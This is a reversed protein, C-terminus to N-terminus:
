SAGGKARPYEDMVVNLARRGTPTDSATEAYSALTFAADLLTIIPPDLVDAAAFMADICSNVVYSGYPHSAVRMLEGWARLNAAHRKADFDNMGCRWITGRTAPVHAAAMDSATPVHWVGGMLRADLASALRDFRRSAVNQPSFAAPLIVSQCRHIHSYEPM